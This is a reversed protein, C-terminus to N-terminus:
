DLAALVTVSLYKAMTLPIEITVISGILVGILLGFVPILWFM